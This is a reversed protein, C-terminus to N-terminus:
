TNLLREIKIEGEELRGIGFLVREPNKLRIYLSETHGASIDSCARIPM